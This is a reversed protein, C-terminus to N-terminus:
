SEVGPERYDLPARLTLAVALTRGARWESAADAALAGAITIRVGGAVPQDDVRIAQVVTSVAGGAVAADERLVGALLVTREPTGNREYWALLSPREAARRAEAGLLVGAGFCGAVALSVAAAALGHSVGNADHSGRASGWTTIAAAFWIVLLAPAGFPPDGRVAGALVGLVLPIAVVLAPAAM